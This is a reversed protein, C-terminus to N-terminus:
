EAIVLPSNSLFDREFRAFDEESAAGWARLEAALEPDMRALDDLSMQGEYGSSAPPASLRELLAFVTAGALAALLLNTLRQEPHSKLYNM